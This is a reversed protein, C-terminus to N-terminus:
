LSVLKPKKYSQVSPTKLTPSCLVIAQDDQGKLAYSAGAYASVSVCFAIMVLALLFWGLHGVLKVDEVTSAEGECSGSVSDQM